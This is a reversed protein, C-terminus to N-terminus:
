RGLNARARSPVAPRRLFACWAAWHSWAWAYAHLTNPACNAAIADIIRGADTPTLGALEAALM